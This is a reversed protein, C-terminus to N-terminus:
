VSRKVKDRLPDSLAFLGIFTSNNELADRDDDNKFENHNYKFSEWDDIPIDKYALAMVRLGQTTFKKEMIDHMIYQSQDPDM